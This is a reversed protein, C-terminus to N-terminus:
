NLQKISELCGRLFSGVRARPIHELFHSSYVLSVSGQQFPLTALLDGQILGDGIPYYDLNIWDSQKVYIDGCALNVKKM